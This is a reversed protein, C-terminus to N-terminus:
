LYRQHHNKLRGLGENAIIFSCEVVWPNSWVKVHHYPKPVWHQIALCIKLSLLDCFEGLDDIKGVKCCLVYKQSEANKGPRWHSKTKSTSLTLPLHVNQVRSFLNKDCWLVTLLCFAYTRYWPSQNLINKIKLAHDWKLNGFVAVLCCCSFM